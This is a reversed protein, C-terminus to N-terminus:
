ENYCGRYDHPAARRKAPMSASAIAPVSIALVIGVLTATGVRSPERRQANGRVPQYM